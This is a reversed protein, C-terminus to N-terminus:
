LGAFERFRTNAQCVSLVAQTVEDLPRNADIIPYGADMALMYYHTQIERHWEIPRSDFRDMAIAQEGVSQRKRAIAIEPNADLLIYIDPDVNVFNQALWNVKEVGVKGLIGQYILTSMTWRGSIVSTGIDLYHSVEDALADRAAIYLLAQQDPTCPVNADVVIERLRQSLPTSGPDSVEKVARGRSELYERVVAAM